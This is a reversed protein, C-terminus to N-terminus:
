DQVHYLGTYDTDSDIQSAGRPLSSNFQDYYSGIAHNSYTTSEKPRIESIDAILETETHKLRFANPTYKSKFAQFVQLHRKQGYNLYVVWEGDKYEDFTKTM